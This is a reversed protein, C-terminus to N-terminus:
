DTTSEGPLREYLRYILRSKTMQPERELVCIVDKVSVTRQPGHSHRNAFSGKGQRETGGTGFAALHSRKSAESREASGKGSAHSPRPAPARKQKAQEAMLQWKSFMDSGGVAQRAAVNAATTRMKDDEEKNPKANKPRSEEKEKELEAGGSSGDETQKKNKDTEAQKKDWEEKAKQNMQLIQRGVDSTIVLRHGTKEADTRQKSVRILTSIFRRLREEVCMSLCRGVDADANKLNSKLVIEALKKLLPGKQLFLNEEEEQVIRRAAETAASEEKPASLLQEEEERLNVGSVATVDNLQDISQEQFAGATKQRKSTPPPASGATELSKKQGGSKKTRAAPPTSTKPAAQKGQSKASPGGPGVQRAKGAPESGQKTNASPNYANNKIDKNQQMPRASANQQMTPHTPVTGIKAPIRGHPHFPPRTEPAQSQPRLPMSGSTPRPYSQPTNTTGYLQQSAQQIETPQLQKNSTQLPIPLSMGPPRNPVAHVGKVDPKQISNDHAFYHMSSQMQTGSLPVFNQPSSSGQSKHGQNPPTPMRVLQDPLKASGSAATSALSSSPHQNANGQNNNRQAQAQMQAFVKHAAQKLMQDGVINRIVRLFDDKHVENRRLKAWVSQLQMDKDRDLHAQLIPILMNFPISPQYGRKRTEQAGHPAQQGVVPNVHQQDGSPQAVDVMSGTLSQQGVYDTGKEALQFSNTEAQQVQNECRPQEQEPQYHHEEQQIFNENESVGTELKPQSLQYSPNMHPQGAQQSSQSSAEQDAAQLQGVTSKSVDSIDQPLTGSSSPAGADGVAEPPPSSM